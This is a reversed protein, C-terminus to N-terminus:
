RLLSSESHQIAQWMDRQYRECRASKSPASPARLTRQSPRCLHSQASRRVHRPIHNSLEHSALISARAITLRYIHKSQQQRSLISHQPIAERQCPQRPRKGRRSTWSGVHIAGTRECRHHVLPKGHWVLRLRCQHAATEGDARDERCAKALLLLPSRRISRASRCRSRSGRPRRM